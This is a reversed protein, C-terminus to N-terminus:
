RGRKPITWCHVTWEVSPTAILNLIRGTLCADVCSENISVFPEIEPNGGTVGDGDAGVLVGAIGTVVVEGVPGMDVVVVTWADERALVDM